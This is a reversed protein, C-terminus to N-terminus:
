DKNLEEYITGRIAPAVAPKARAAGGSIKDMLELAKQYRGSRNKTKDNLIKIFQDQWKDSLLVDVATKDYEGNILNNVKRLLYQTDSRPESVNVGERGALTRGTPQNLLDRYMIKMDKLLEQSKPKDDLAKLLQEFYNKNSLVGAFESGYNETKELNRRNNMLKEIHQRVIGNWAEPNKARISDRVREFVEPNTETPDFIKNSIKKLDDEATEAIKGVRGEKIITLPKGEGLEESYISRAKAYDPSVADLAKVLEKQANSILSSEYLNGKKFAAESRDYLNKKVQDLTKISRPSSGSLAKKYVPSNLVQNYASEINGDKLLDFLVDAPIQKPEAKKYFPKAERQLREMEDEIHKKAADRIARDYNKVSEEPNISEYLNKIIAQQKEREANKAIQHALAGEHTTGLAGEMKGQLESGSAEYPSLNIGHKKALAAKQLTEPIDSLPINEFATKAAHYEPRLFYNIGGLTSAGIKKGVDGVFPLGGGIAAGELAGELAGYAHTGLAEPRYKLGGIAGGALGGVGAGYLARGIVSLEPGPTASFLAYPLAGGLFEGIGTAYPYKKRAQETLAHQEKRLREMAEQFGVMQGFGQRLKSMEENFGTALAVTRGFSPNEKAWDSAGFVKQLWSPSEQATLGPESENVYGRRKAEKELEEITAEM